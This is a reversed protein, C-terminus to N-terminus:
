LLTINFIFYFLLYVFYIIEKYFTSRVDDTDNSNSFSDQTIQADNPISILMCSTLIPQSLSSFSYSM